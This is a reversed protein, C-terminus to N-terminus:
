YFGSSWVKCLFKRFVKSLTTKSADYVENGFNDSLILKFTGGIDREFTGDTDGKFTGGKILRLGGVL